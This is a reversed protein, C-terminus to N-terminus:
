DTAPLCTSKKAGDLNVQLTLRLLINRGILAQRQPNVYCIPSIEWDMVCRCQIPTSKVNGDEDAVGVRLESISFAYTSGLHRGLFPNRILSLDLIQEQILSDYNALISPAGTDFDGIMFLGHQVLQEDDWQVRGFYVPLTPYWDDNPLSSWTAEEILPNRVFVLPVKNHQYGIEKIEKDSPIKALSSSSKLVKGGCVLMWQANRKQLESQIAHWNRKQLELTLSHRQEISLTLYQEFSIETIGDPDDVLFYEKIDHIVLFSETTEHISSNLVGLKSLVKLVSRIQKKSLRGEPSLEKAVYDVLNYYM